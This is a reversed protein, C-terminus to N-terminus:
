KKVFAVININLYGVNLLVAMMCRGLFAMAVVREPELLDNKKREYQLVLIGYLSILFM